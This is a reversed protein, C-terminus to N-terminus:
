RRLKYIPYRIRTIQLLHKMKLNNKKYDKITKIKEFFM